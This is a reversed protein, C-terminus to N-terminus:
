DFRRMLYIISEDVTITGPAFNEVAASAMSLSAAVPFTAAAYEGLAELAVVTDNTSQFDGRANGRM